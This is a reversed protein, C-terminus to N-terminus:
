SNNSPLPRPTPSLQFSQNRSFLPQHCCHLRKLSKFLARLDKVLTLPATKVFHRAVMQPPEVPQHPM